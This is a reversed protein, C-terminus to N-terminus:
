PAMKTESDGKGKGNYGVHGPNFEELNFLTYVNLSLLIFFCLLGAGATQLFGTWISVSKSQM